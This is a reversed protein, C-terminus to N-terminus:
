GVQVFALAVSRPEKLVVDDHMEDRVTEWHALFVKFFSSSRSKMRRDAIEAGM